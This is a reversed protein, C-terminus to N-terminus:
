SAIAAPTWLNDVAQEADARSRRELLIFGSM